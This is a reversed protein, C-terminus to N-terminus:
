PKPLYDSIHRSRNHKDLGENELGFRMQANEDFHSPEAIQMQTNARRQNKKNRPGDAIQNLLKTLKQNPEPSVLTRLHGTGRM